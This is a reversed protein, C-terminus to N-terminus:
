SPVYKEGNELTEITSKSCTFRFNGVFKCEFNENNFICFEFKKIDLM